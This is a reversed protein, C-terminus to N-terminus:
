EGVREIQWTWFSKHQGNDMLLHVKFGDRLSCSTFRLEGVDGSSKVRMAEGQAPDAADWENRTM